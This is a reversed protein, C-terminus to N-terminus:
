GADMFYGVSLKVQSCFPMCFASSRALNCNACFFHKFHKVGKCLIRNKDSRSESLDALYEHLFVIRMQFLLEDQNFKKRIDSPIGLLEEFYQHFEASNSKSILELVQQENM